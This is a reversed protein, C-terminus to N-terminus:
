QNGFKQDEQDVNPLFSPTNVKQYIREKEVKDLIPLFEKGKLTILIVSTLKVENPQLKQQM